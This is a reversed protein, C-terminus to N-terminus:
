LKDMAKIYETIAREKLMTDIETQGASLMSPDIFGFPYVPESFGEHRLVYAIATQITYGFVPVFGITSYLRQVEQIAYALELSTPTPLYEFDAVNNNIVETAYFMFVPDETFLEPREVLIQLVHIKDVTLPSLVLGISLSITEVELDVWELRGFMRDLNDKIDTLPAKDMNPDAAKLELIKPSEIIM